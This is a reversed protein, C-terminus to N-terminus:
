KYTTFIRVRVHPIKTALFTTYQMSLFINEMKAVARRPPTTGLQFVDSFVRCPQYHRACFSRKSFLSAPKHIWENAYRGLLSCRTKEIEYETLKM